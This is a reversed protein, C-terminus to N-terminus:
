GQLFKALEESHSKNVYVIGQQMLEEVQLDEFANFTHLAIRIEPNRERLEEAYRLGAGADVPYGMKLPVDMDLVAISYYDASQAKQEYEAAEAICTALDVNYGKRAIDRKILSGLMPDDELLLINRVNDDVSASDEAM